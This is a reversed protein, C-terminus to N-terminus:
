PQTDSTSLISICSMTTTPKAFHSPSGGTSTTTNICSFTLTQVTCVNYFAVHLPTPDYRTEYGTTSTDRTFPRHLRATYNLFPRCSTGLYFVGLASDISSPTNSETVTASAKAPAYQEISDAPATTEDGNLM